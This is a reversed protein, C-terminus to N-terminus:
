FCEDWESFVLLSEALIRTFVIIFLKFCRAYSLYQCFDPYQLLINMNSISHFCLIHDNILVIIQSVDSSM